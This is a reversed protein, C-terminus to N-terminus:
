FTLKGDADRDISVKTYPFFHARDLTYPTGADTGNGLPPNYTLQFDNNTDETKSAITRTGLYSYGGLFTIHDGVDVTSSKDLLDKNKMVGTEKCATNPHSEIFGKSFLLNNEFNNRRKRNTNTLAMAKAKKITLYDGSTNAGALNNQNFTNAM